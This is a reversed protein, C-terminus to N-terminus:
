DGNKKKTDKKKMKEDIKDKLTDAGEYWKDAGEEDIEGTLKDIEYRIDDTGEFWDYDRKQTKKRNIVKETEDEQSKVPVVQKKKRPKSIRIEEVKAEQQSQIRVADKLSSRDDLKEKSKSPSSSTTKVDSDYKAFIKEQSIKSARDYVSKKQRYSVFVIAFLLFIVAIIIPFYPSNILTIWWPSLINIMIDIDGQVYGDKQAIIKISDEDEPATLWARGDDDTIRIDGFSQIAVEAGPITNGDEDKVLVSFQNGADVTYVEPEIILKLPEDQSENDLITITGNTSNYGEKSALIVFSTDQDIKPAKITIEGTEKITYHIDNFEIDVDIKWEPIDSENFSYVSIIFYEEEYIEDIPYGEDDTIHLHLQNGQAVSGPAIILINLFLIVYITLSIAIHNGRIISRM